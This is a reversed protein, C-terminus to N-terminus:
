SLRIGITYYIKGYSSRRKFFVFRKQTPLRSRPIRHSEGCSELQYQSVAPGVCVFVRERCGVVAANRPLSKYYVFLLSLFTIFSFRPRTPKRLKCIGHPLKKKKEQTYVHAYTLGRASSPSEAYWGPRASMFRVPFPFQCKPQTSQADSLGSLKRCRHTGLRQILRTPTELSRPWEFRKVSIVIEQGLSSAFWCFRISDAPQLFTCRGEFYSCRNLLWSHLNSTAAMKLENATKRGM